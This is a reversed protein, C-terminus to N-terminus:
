AVHRLRWGQLLALALALTAVVVSATFYWRSDFTCRVRGNTEQASIIRICSLGWYSSM